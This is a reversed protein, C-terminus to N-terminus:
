PWVSDDPSRDLPREPGCYPTLYQAPQRDYQDRWFEAALAQAYGPKAGFLRAVRATDQIGSCSALAEDGIGSLHASEHAVVYVADAVLAAKSGGTPRDGGYVFADLPGCVSPGLNIRNHVQSTFALVTGEGRVDVSTYAAAESLVHPWDDKSWCRVETPISTLSGVVSGFHADIRSSTTPHAARPLTRSERLRQDIEDVALLQARTARSQAAQLAVGASFDHRLFRATAEAYRLWSACARRQLAVTPGLRSTPPKAVAREFSHECDRYPALTRRAAAATPLAGSDGQRAAYADAWHVYSRIWGLETSTLNGHGTV